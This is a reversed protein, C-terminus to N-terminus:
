VHARGIKNPAPRGYAIEIKADPFKHVFNPEFLENLHASMAARNPATM